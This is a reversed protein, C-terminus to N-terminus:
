RIVRVMTEIQPAMRNGAVRMHEAYAVAEGEHCFLLPIMVV